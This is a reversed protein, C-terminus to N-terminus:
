LISMILRNSSILVLLALRLYKSVAGNLDVESVELSSTTVMNEVRIVLRSDMVMLVHAETRTHPRICRINITEHRAGGRATRRITVMGNDKERTSRYPGEVAKDLTATIGGGTHNAKIKLM